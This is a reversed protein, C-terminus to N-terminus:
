KQKAEAVKAEFLKGAKAWSGSAGKEGENAYELLLPLLADAFEKSSDYPM